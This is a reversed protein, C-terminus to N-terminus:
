CVCKRLGESESQGLAFDNHRGLRCFLFGFGKQNEHASIDM